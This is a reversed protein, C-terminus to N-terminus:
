SERELLVVWPGRPGGAELWEGVFVEGVQGRHRDFLVEGNSNSGERYRYEGRYRHGDSSTATVTISDGDEVNLTFTLLHDSSEAVGLDHESWQGEYRYLSRGRMGM